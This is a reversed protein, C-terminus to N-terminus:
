QLRPQVAMNVAVEAVIMWSSVPWIIERVDFSGSARRHGQLRTSRIGGEEPFTTRWSILASKTLYLWAEKQLGTSLEIDFASLFFQSPLKGRRVSFINLASLGLEVEVAFPWRDCVFCFDFFVGFGTPQVIDRGLAGSTLGSNGSSGSNKSVINVFSRLDVSNSLELSIGPLNM